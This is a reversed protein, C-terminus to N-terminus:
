VSSEAARRFTRFNHFFFALFNSFYFYNVNKPKSAYCFKRLFFSINLNGLKRTGIELATIAVAVICMPSKYGINWQRCHM